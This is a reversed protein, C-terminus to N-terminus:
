YRRPAETAHCRFCADYLGDIDKRLQAADKRDASKRVARIQSSLSGLPIQWERDPVIGQIERRSEEMRNLSAQIRDTDIKGGTYGDELDLFHSELRGMAEHLKVVVAPNTTASHPKYIRAEALATSGTIVGLLGILLKTKM